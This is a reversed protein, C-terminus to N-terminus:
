RRGLLRGILIGVLLAGVVSQTPHASVSQEAEDFLTKIEDAFEHIHDLLEKEERTEAVPEPIAAARTVPPDSAAARERQSASLEERLSKLENSVLSVM